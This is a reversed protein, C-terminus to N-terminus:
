TTPKPAASWGFTAHATSAIAATYLFCLAHRSASSAMSSAIAMRLASCSLLSPWCSNEWSSSTASAELVSISACRLDIWSVIFFLETLPSNPPAPLPLLLFMRSAALAAFFSSTAAWASVSTTAESASFVAATAAPTPDEATVVAM